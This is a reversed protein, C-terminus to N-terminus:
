FTLPIYSKKGELIALRSSEIPMDLHSVTFSDVKYPNYYVEAMKSIDENHVTELFNGVVYAHVNKTKERLVRQRGAESVEFTANGLVVVPSHGLVKKTVYDQISFMKKRFHYYVRVRQWDEVNRGKYPIFGDYTNM